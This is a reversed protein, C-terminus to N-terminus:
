RKLPSAILQGVLAEFNAPIGDDPRHGWSRAWNGAFEAAKPNGLIREYGDPGDVLMLDFDSWWETGLVDQTRRWNSSTIIEPVEDSNFFPNDVERLYEDYGLAAADARPVYNLIVCWESRRDLKQGAIEECVVVHYNVSLDPHQPARGWRLTWQHAFEKLTENGWVQELAEKSEIYMTDFYAFSSWGNKRSHVKWSEYWAIGPISMFLPNDVERVWQEYAHADVDARPTYTLFCMASSPSKSPHAPM